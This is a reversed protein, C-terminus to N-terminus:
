YNSAFSCGKPAAMPALCQTWGPKFLGLFIFCAGGSPPVGHTFKSRFVSYLTSRIAACDGSARVINADFPSGSRDKAGTGGSVIGRRNFRPVSPLRFLCRNFITSKEVNESFSRV